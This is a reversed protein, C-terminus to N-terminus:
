GTFLDYAKQTAMPKDAEIGMLSWTGSSIYAWNDGEAQGSKMPAPGGAPSAPVVAVASGTDHTAPAIVPIKSLGTEQCVESTLDGIVTGPPVISQMISKPIGLAGFLEDDWDKKRTNYMQSTTAFSFETKKQGTLFYNFIDPIFLLDRMSKLLPSKQHVMSFVQFLTNLQMFQIGTLEYVREKPILKFFEEMMGNTRDDRYVFPLGLLEGKEDLLAYDVGWTDFGVSEVQASCNKLSKKIEEYLRLIEWHWHGSLNVMENAFRNLERITLKQGDLAGLMARGSEAGIDFALFNHTTM